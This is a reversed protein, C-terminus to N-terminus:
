KRIHMYQRVVYSLAIIVVNGIFILCFWFSCSFMKELLEPLDQDADEIDFEFHVDRFCEIRRLLSWYIIISFPGEPLSRSSVPGGGVQYRCKFDWEPCVDFWTSEHSRLDRNILWHTTSHQGRDSPHQYFAQRVGLRGNDLIM